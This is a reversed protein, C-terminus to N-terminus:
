KKINVAYWGYKVPDDKCAKKCKGDYMLQRLAGKVTSPPINKGYMELIANSIDYSNMIKQSNALVDLVLKRITGRNCGDVNM